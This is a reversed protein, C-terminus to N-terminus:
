MPRKLPEQWAFEPASLFHAPDLGNIELYMNRFNNVVNALLLTDNQVYLDTYEGIKKEFDIYVREAHM